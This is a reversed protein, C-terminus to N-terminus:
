VMTRVLVSAIIMILGGKQLANASPPLRLKGERAMAYVQAPTVNVIGLRGGWWEALLGWVCGTTGLVIWLSPRGAVILGIAVLGCILAIGLAIVPKKREDM